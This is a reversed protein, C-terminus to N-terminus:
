CRVASRRVMARIPDSVRGSASRGTNHYRQRCGRDGVSEAVLWALGALLACVVSIRAVAFCCVGCGCMTRSVIVMIFLLTGFLSVLAAVHVGRLATVIIETATM